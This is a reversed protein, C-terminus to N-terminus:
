AARPPDGRKTRRRTRRRPDNALSLLRELLERLRAATELHARLVTLLEVNLETVNTV